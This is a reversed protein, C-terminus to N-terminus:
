SVCPVAAVVAVIKESIYGTEQGNCKKIYVALLKYDNSFEL